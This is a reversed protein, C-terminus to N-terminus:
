AEEQRVQELTKTVQDRLQNLYSSIEMDIKRIQALFKQHRQYRRIPKALRDPVLKGIYTLKTRQQEARSLYWSAHPEGRACKCGPKGCKRKMQYLSGAIMAGPRLTRDLLARRRKDLQLIKQRM